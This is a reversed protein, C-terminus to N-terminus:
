VGCAARVAALVYWVELFLRLGFGSSMCDFLWMVDAGTLFLGVGRLVLGIDRLFLGVGRLVLGVGTLFLGVGTLLLCM